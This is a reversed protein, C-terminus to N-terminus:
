EPAFLEVIWAEVDATTAQVSASVTGYHSTQIKEILWAKLAARQEAGGPPCCVGLLCCRQQNGNAM